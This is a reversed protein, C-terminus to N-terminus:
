TSEPIRQRICTYHYPEELNIPLYLGGKLYLPLIPLLCGVTCSEQWIELHPTENVEAVRYAIAYLDAQMPQMSMELRKMLEDHLNASLTKLALNLV